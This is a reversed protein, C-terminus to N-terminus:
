WMWFQYESNETFDLGRVLDWVSAKQEVFQFVNKKKKLIQEQSESLCFATETDCKPNNELWDRQESTIHYYYYFNIEADEM